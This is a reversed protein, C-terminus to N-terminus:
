QNRWYQEFARGEVVSAASQGEGALTGFPMGTILGMLFIGVMAAVVCSGYHRFVQKM